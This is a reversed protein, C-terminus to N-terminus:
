TVTCRNVSSTSDASFPWERCLGTLQWSKCRTLEPDFSAAFLLNRLCKQCLCEFEAAAVVVTWGMGVQSHKQLFVFLGATM